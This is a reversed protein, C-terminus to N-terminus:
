KVNQPAPPFYNINIVVRAKENTTTTGAHKMNGDFIIMRNEVSPVNDSDEFRTYGDCTIINFIATKQALNPLEFDVHYPREIIRSRIPTLNAKVRLLLAPNLKKILPAVHQFNPMVVGHSPTWFQCTFQYDDDADEGLGQKKVQEIADQHYTVSPQFRWMCDNRFWYQMRIFEVEPLYNDIIQINSAM